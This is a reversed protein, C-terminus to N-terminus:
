LPISHLHRAFEGVVVSTEEELFVTAAKVCKERQEVLNSFADITM